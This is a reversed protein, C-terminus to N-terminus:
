YYIEWIRFLVTWQLARQGHVLDPLDGLLPPDVLIDVLPHHPDEGQGAHIVEQPKSLTSNFGDGQVSENVCMNLHFLQFKVSWTNCALTLTVLKMNPFLIFKTWFQPNM